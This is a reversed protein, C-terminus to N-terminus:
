RIILTTWPHHNVRRQGYATFVEWHFLDQWTASVGIVPTRNASGNDDYVWQSYDVARADPAALLAASVLASALIGQTLKM